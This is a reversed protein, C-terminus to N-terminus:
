RAESRLVYGYVDQLIFPVKSAVPRVAVVGPVTNAIALANRVEVPPVNVSPPIVQITPVAHPDPHPGTATSNFASLLPSTQWHGVGPYQM